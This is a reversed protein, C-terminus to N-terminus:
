EYVYQKELMSGIVVYNFRAKMLRTLAINNESGLTKIRTFMCGREKAWTEMRKVFESVIAFTRHQPLVYVLRETSFLEATFIHTDLHGYFIGVVKSDAEAIYFFSDDNGIHSAVDNVVSELIPCCLPELYTMALKVCDALDKLEAERITVVNGRIGRM